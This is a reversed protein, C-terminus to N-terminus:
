ASRTQSNPLSTDVVKKISGPATSGIINAIAIAGVALSTQHAARVAKARESFTASLGRRAARRTLPASKM